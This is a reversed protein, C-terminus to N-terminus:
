KHVLKGNEVKLFIVLGLFMEYNKCVDLIGFIDASDIQDLNYFVELM